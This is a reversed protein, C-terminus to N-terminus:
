TDHCRHLRVKLKMEQLLKDVEAHMQEVPDERVRSWIVRLRSHELVSELSEEVGIDQFDPSAAEIINCVLANVFQLVAVKLM